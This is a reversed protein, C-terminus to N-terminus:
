QYISDYTETTWYRTNLLPQLDPRIPNQTNEIIFSCKFWKKTSIQFRHKENQLFEDICKESNSFAYFNIYKKFEIQYITLGPYRVIDLPKVEFSISKGENYHKLFDHVAKEKQTSLLQNYRICNKLSVKNNSQFIKKFFVIIEM